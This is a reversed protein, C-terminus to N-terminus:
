GFSAAATSAYALKRREGRKEQASARTAEVTLGGGEGGEGGGVGGGM